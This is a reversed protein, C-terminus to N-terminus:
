LNTVEGMFLITGTSVESITYVFPHDINVVIWEPDNPRGWSAGSLTTAGAAETGEESVKIRAGHVATNLKVPSTLMSDFGNDFMSGLGLATLCSIIDNKYDSEFKPLRLSLPESKHITSETFGAIKEATLTNVFGDFDDAPMMVTMMFHRNSGGVGLPFILTTVDNNFSAEFYFKRHMAAVEKVSGDLNHFPAPATNATNFADTWIGKFYITNVLAANGCVGDSLFDKIFGYTHNEIWRNIESRVDDTGFDRAYLSANYFENLTNSFGANVDDGSGNVWLSNATMCWVGGDLHALQEMMASSFTNLEELTAEGNGLRNVIGDRTQGSYRGRFLIKKSQPILM